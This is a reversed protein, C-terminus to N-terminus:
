IINKLYIEYGNLMHALMALGISLTINFTKYTFHTNSMFENDGFIVQMWRKRLSNIKIPFM